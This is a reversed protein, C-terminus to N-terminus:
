DDTKEQPLDSLYRPEPYLTIWDPPRLTREVSLLDLEPDFFPIMPRSNLGVTARCRIEVDKQDDPLEQHIWRALLLVQDADRVKVDQFEKVLHEFPVPRSTRTRPDFVEFQMGFNRRNLKMRWSFHHGERTLATSGPYLWQRFPMLIQWCVYVALLSLGVKTRRSVVPSQEMPAISNTRRLKAITDVPTFVVLTAILMLWPFIGIGFLSTNLLHFAVMAIMAPIRTWRWLLCPIVLLDLLMGGWVFSNLCWPQEFYQGLLHTDKQELLWPRMPEGYIWDWNIKALGGYFYPVGLQFRLLWLTWRPVTSRRLEPCRWADLSHRHNAPLFIALFALLCILYYHNLYWSKDVLFHHSFGFCFVACATRYYFGLMICMAAVGLVFFQLYPGNGPWPRVWDFGPYTFHHTPEIYYNHILDTSFYYWAQWVMCAGFGIRFLALWLGDIPQLARQLMSPKM